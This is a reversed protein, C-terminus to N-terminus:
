SASKSAIAETVPWDVLATAGMPERRHRGTAARRLNGGTTPLPRSSSKSRTRPYRRERGASSSTSRIM